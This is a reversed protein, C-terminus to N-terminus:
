RTNNTIQSFPDACPSDQPLRRHSRWSDRTNKATGKQSHEFIMNSVSLPPPNAGLTIISHYQPLPPTCLLHYWELFELNIYFISFNYIIHMFFFLLFTNFHLAVLTILLSLPPPHGSISFQTLYPPTWSLCLKLSIIKSREREVNIVILQYCITSNLKQNYPQMIMCDDGEVM